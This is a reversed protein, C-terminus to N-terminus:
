QGVLSDRQGAIEAVRAKGSDLLELAEEVIARVDSSAPTVTDRADFAAEIQAALNSM